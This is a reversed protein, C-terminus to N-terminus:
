LDKLFNKIMRNHIEESYGHELISDFISISTIVQNKRKLHFDILEFHNTPDPETLLKVYQEV